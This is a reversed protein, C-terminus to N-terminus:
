SGALLKDYDQASLIGEEITVERISRGEAQARHAVRASALYGIVPNLLTAAGLTHDLYYRCREENASVGKVCKEAFLRSSSALITLTHNLNWAILPMMVNLELQGAQCAMAIAADCGIVQYCVMNLMEAMVPNVKGPMISSGPQVEPLHIEGFGTTPGSALLRLDNAIRTLDLALTRLAASLVVFVDTNQCLEVLDSGPRVTLGTERAIAVCIREAFGPPTNIGTGVANGGIGLEQLEPVVATLRAINKRITLAWAAFERNLGIPVADQLHTRGSKRVNRFREAAEDLRESLLNLAEQLPKLLKLATLRMATPVVDNTSQGMNVHDNPDVIARDGPEGGLSQIAINALVENVNMNHSTGAGAQFVDVVFQAGYRRGGN